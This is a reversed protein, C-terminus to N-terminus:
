NEHSGAVILNGLRFLRLGGSHLDSLRGASVSGINHDNGLQGSSLSDRWRVLSWGGFVRFSTRMEVIM